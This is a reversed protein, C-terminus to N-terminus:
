RHLIIALTPSSGPVQLRGPCKTQLDSNLSFAAETKLIKAKHTHTHTHTHTASALAAILSHLLCQMWREPRQASYFAGTRTEM